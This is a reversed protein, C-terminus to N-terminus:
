RLNHFIKEGNHEMKLEKQAQLFMISGLHTRPKMNPCLKRKMLPWIEEFFYSTNCCIQNTGSANCAVDLQREVSPFIDHLKESIEWAIMDPHGGGDGTCRHEAQTTDAFRSFDGREACVSINRKDNITHMCEFGLKKIYKKEDIPHINTRGFKERMTKAVEIFQEYQRVEKRGFGSLGIVPGSYVTLFEELLPPPKLQVENSNAGTFNSLGKRIMAVISSQKDRYDQKCHFNGFVLADLTDLKAKILM